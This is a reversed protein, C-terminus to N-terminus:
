AATFSVVRHNSDVCGGLEKSMMPVTGIPHWNSRYDSKAWDSWTSLDDNVNPPGSNQGRIQTNLPSGSTLRHTFWVTAGTALTDFENTFFRPDIKFNDDGYANSDSIQVSGRGFPLLFWSDFGISDSGSYDYNESVSAGKNLIWDRQLELVTRLGDASSAAGNDIADQVYQDINNQLMNTATAVNDGQFIDEFRPFLVSQGGAQAGTIRFSTTSTTQDILNQGVPLDVRLDVNAAALVAKPGIGSHQLLVPTRIAGTAVIVERSASVTYTDSGGVSQFEVGTARPTSGAAGSALNVKGVKSKVLITLNPLNKEYLFARYADSRIDRGGSAYKTHAMPSIGAPNGCSLDSPYPMGFNRTTANLNHELDTPVISEYVVAVLGNYGHCPQSYTFGADVQQSSPPTFTEVGLMYPELTAWNLGQNGVSELADLQFDHPKSWAMGNILTSGGLGKGARISKQGGVSQEM